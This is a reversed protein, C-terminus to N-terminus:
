CARASSDAGRWARARAVGLDLAITRPMHSLRPRTTASYGCRPLNWARRAPRGRRSRAARALDVSWRRGGLRVVDEERRMEAIPLDRGQGRGLGSQRDGLDVAGGVIGEDVIITACARLATPLSSTAWPCRRPAARSRRAAGLALMEAHQDVLLHIVADRHREEAAVRHGRRRQRAERQAVVARHHRHRTSRSFPACKRRVTSFGIAAARAAAVSLGVASASM